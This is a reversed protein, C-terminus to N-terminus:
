KKEPVTKVEICPPSTRWGLPEPVTVASIDCFRRISWGACVDGGPKDVRLSATLSPPDVPVEADPYLGRFARAVAAYQMSLGSLRLAKKEEPLKATDGALATDAFGVMAEALAVFGVLSPLRLGPDGEVLSKAKAAAARLGELDAPAPSCREPICPSNYHPYWYAEGIDSKWRLEGAVCRGAAKEAAKMVATMAERAAARSPSAASASAAPAAGAPADFRDCGCAAVCAALAWARAPRV